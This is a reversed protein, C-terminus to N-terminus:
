ESKLWKFTRNLIGKEWSSLEIAKEWDEDERIGRCGSVEGGNVEMFSGFAPGGIKQGSGEPEKAAEEGWAHIDGFSKNEARNREREPSQGRPSWIPEIIRELVVGLNIYGALIEKMLGQM